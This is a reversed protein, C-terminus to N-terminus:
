PTRDVYILSLAITPSARQWPLVHGQLLPRGLDARQCGRRRRAPVRDEFVRCSHAPEYACPASCPRLTAADCGAAPDFTHLRTLVPNADHESRPNIISVVFRGFAHFFTQLFCPATDSRATRARADGCSGLSRALAAGKWLACHQVATMFFTRGSFAEGLDITTQNWSTRRPLDAHLFYSLFLSHVQRLHSGESHHTSCSPCASRAFTLSFTPRTLASRSRALRATVFSAAWCTRLRPRMRDACRLKGMRLTCLFCPVGQVRRSQKYEARRRTRSATASEYILLCLPTHGVSFTDILLKFAFPDGRIWADDPNPKATTPSQTRGGRRAPILQMLLLCSFRILFDTRVFVGLARFGSSGVNV